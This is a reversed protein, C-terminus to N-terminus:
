GCSNCIFMLPLLASSLVFIPWTARRLTTSARQIQASGHERQRASPHVATAAVAAKM